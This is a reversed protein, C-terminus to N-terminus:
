LVADSKNRKLNFRGPSDRGSPESTWFRARDHASSTHRAGPAHPQSAIM